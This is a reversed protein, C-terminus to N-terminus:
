ALAFQFKFLHSASDLNIIKKELANYKDIRYINEPKVLLKYNKFENRKIAKFTYREFLVRCCRGSIRTTRYYLLGLGITYYSTRVDM